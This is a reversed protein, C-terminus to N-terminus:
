GALLCFFNVHKQAEPCSQLGGPKGVQKRRARDAFYDAIREVGDEDRPSGLSDDSSSELEAGEARAAEAAELETVQRQVDAVLAAIGAATLSADDAAACM